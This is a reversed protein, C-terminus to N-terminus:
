NLDEYSLAGHTSADAPEKAGGAAAAQHQSAKCAPHEVLLYHTSMFHKRILTYVACWRAPRSQLASM